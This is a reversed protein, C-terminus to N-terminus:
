NILKKQINWISGTRSNIERKYSGSEIIEFEFKYDIWENPIMFPTPRISREAASIVYQIQRFLIM